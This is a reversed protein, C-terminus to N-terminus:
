EIHTNSGSHEAVADKVGTKNQNGNGSNVELNDFKASEERLVPKDSSEYDKRNVDEKSDVVGVLEAGSADARLEKRHHHHDKGMSSQDGPAELILYAVHEMRM